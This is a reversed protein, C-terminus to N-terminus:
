QDLQTKPLYKTDPTGQLVSLEYAGIVGSRQFTPEYTSNQVTQRLEHRDTGLIERPREDFSSKYQYGYNHDTALHSGAPHTSIDRFHQLVDQLAEKDSEQIISGDPFKGTVYATKLAEPSVELHKDGLKPLIAAVSDALRQKDDWPAVPRGFKALWQDAQASPTKYVDRKLDNQQGADYVVGQVHLGSLTGDQNTEVTLKNLYPVQGEEEKSRLKMLGGVDAQENVPMANYERSIDQGARSLAILREAEASADALPKHDIPKSLMLLNLNEPEQQLGNLPDRLTKIQEYNKPAEVM